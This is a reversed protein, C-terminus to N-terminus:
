FTPDPSALCESPRPTLADQLEEQDCPHIFDFISHGILELQPFPLTQLSSANLLVGPSAGREERQKDNKKKKKQDWILLRTLTM